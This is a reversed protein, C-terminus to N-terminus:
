NESAMKKEERERVRHLGEELAQQTDDPLM